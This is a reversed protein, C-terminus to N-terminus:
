SDPHGEMTFVWVPSGAPPAGFAAAASFSLKEDLEWGEKWVRFVEFYRKRAIGTNKTLLLKGQAGSSGEALNTGVAVHSGSLANGGIRLVVSRRTGILTEWLADREAGDKPGGLKLNGTADQFYLRLHADREPIIAPDVEDLPIGGHADGYLRKTFRSRYQKEPVGKPPAYLPNRENDLVRLAHVRNRVCRLVAIPAAVVRINKYEAVYFSHGNGKGTRPNFDVHIGIPNKLFRRRERASLYSLEGCDIADVFDFITELYHDTVRENGLCGVKLHLPDCPFSCFHDNIFCDAVRHSGYVDSIDITIPPRHFSYSVHAM